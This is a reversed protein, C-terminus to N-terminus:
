SGVVAPTREQTRLAREAQRRKREIEDLYEGVRERFPETLDQQLMDRCIQEARDFDGVQVWCSAASFADIQYLRLDLHHELLYAALEEEIRAAKEFLRRAEAEQGTKRRDHAMLIYGSKETEKRRFEEDLGARSIEIGM